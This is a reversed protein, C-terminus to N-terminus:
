GLGAMASDGAGGGSGRQERREALGGRDTFEGASLFSGAASTVGVAPELDNWGSREACRLCSAKRSRM